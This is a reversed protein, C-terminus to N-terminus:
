IFNFKLFSFYFWGMIIIFKISPKLRFKSLFHFKSFWTNVCLPIISQNYASNSTNQVLTLSAVNTIQDRHYSRKAKEKAFLLFYIYTALVLIAILLLCWPFFNFVSILYLPQFNISSDNKSIGFSNVIIAWSSISFIWILVMILYPRKLLFEREYGKPRQISRLRAYNAYFIHASTNM